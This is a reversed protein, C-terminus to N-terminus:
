GSCDLLREVQQGQGVWALAGETDSQPIPAAPAPNSPLRPFRPHTLELPSLTPHGPRKRGVLATRRCLILPWAERLCTLTCGPFDGREQTLERSTWLFRFQAASKGHM